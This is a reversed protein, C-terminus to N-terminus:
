FCIPGSIRKPRRSRFWGNGPQMFVGHSASSSCGAPVTPLVRGPTVYRYSDWFFVAAVALINWPRSVLLAALFDM